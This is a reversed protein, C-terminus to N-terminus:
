TPSVLLSWGDANPVAQRITTVLFGPQSTSWHSVTSAMVNPSPGQEGQTFPQRTQRSQLALYGVVSCHIRLSIISYRLVMGGVTSVGAERAVETGAQLIPANSNPAAISPSWNTHLLDQDITTISRIQQPPTPCTLTLAPV